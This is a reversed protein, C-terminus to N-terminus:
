DGYVSPLVVAYQDENNMLARVISLPYRRHGGATFAFRIKGDKSWKSLTQASVGLMRAADRPRLLMHPDDPAVPDIEIPTPM